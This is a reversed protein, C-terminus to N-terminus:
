SSNNTIVSDIPIGAKGSNKYSTSALALNPFDDYAEVIVTKEYSASFVRGSLEIRKGRAGLRGSAESVRAHALDLVFDRIEKGNSVLADAHSGPV